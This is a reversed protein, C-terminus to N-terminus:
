LQSCASAAFRTSLAEKASDRLMRATERPIWFPNGSVVLSNPAVPPIGRLGAYVVLAALYTGVRGPHIGDWAYLPLSPARRLAAGWAAGGPLLGADAGAAAAAYSDVVEPLGLGRRPWVMLLFPRAGWERAEDAFAKAYFCLNARSEPLVSPGQQLVVADWRGGLLSERASGTNWNGELTVASPAITRYEITVQKSAKAIAAVFAPLDNTSTQSNGIFLVRLPRVSGPEAAARGLGSALALGLVAVLAVWHLRKLRGGVPLLVFTGAGPQRFMAGLFGSGTVFDFPPCLIRGHDSSSVFGLWHGQADQDRVLPPVPELQEGLDDRPEPVLHDGALGVDRCDGCHGRPLSGVDGQDPETEGRLVRELQDLLDDALRAAGHDREQGGLVRGVDAFRGLAADEGIEDVGGGVLQLARDVDGQLPEGLVDRRQRGAREPTSRGGSCPASATSTTTSTTVAYSRM